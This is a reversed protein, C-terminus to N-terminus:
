SLVNAAAEHEQGIKELWDLGNKIEGAQEGRARDLLQARLEPSYDHETAKAYRLLVPGRAIAAITEPRVALGFHAVVRTLTEETHRLLHEFDLALLRPGAVQGIAEQTLRETLWSMAALEGLSDTRPTPAGLLRELRGAREARHGALDDPSNAGALLTAFYPEPALNLYIARAGERAAMLRAGLRAASSTAKLVVARTAPFGRSWLRLMTELLATLRADGEPADSLEALMRLTLPERLPLVEGTEDLLRSLLTSGVHGAHFIFHLPRADQRPAAGAVEAFACWAGKTAPSLIREDLFSAARYDAENMRILLVLDRAFDLKHPYILPTDGLARAFEEAETM